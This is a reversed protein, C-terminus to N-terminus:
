AASTSPLTAQYQAWVEADHEPCEPQHATLWRGTEKSQFGAPQCKAYVGEADLFDVYVDQGKRSQYYEFAAKGTTGSLSLKIEGNPTADWFFENEAPDHPGHKSVARLVVQYSGYAYETLEAVFFKARVKGAM